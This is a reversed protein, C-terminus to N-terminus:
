KQAGSPASASTSGAPNDGKASETSDGAPDECSAIVSDRERVAGKLLVVTAAYARITEAPASVPTLDAIPLAPSDLRPAKCYIPQFVPVKVTVPVAPPPFPPSFACGALPVLILPLLCKVM